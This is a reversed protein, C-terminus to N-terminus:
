RQSQYDAGVIVRIDAGIPANPDPTAAQATVGFRNQLYQITYPKSGGTYDMIVTHKAYETPVTKIVNYGYSKLLNSVQVALGTQKTANEVQVSANEAKIYGDVFLTRVFTQIDAYNGIGDVPVVVSADGMTSNRVLNNTDNNLVQNTVNKPDLDKGITALRQIEPIQLDTKVNKGVVALMALVKTPDTLISQQSAKQRLALLVQQQRKARGYDDGCTGKRCRSYKLALTGDMHYTGPKLSFGCSRSENNDCPYEPDNLAEDVTINDIGGVNDVTQKLASFNILTYYHIPVGLVASVTQKALEPGSGAKAQEGYVNAANIKDWGVGPIKVYLDRPISLMAVQNNKVDYSAVMITDTLHEGAHGEDGEGLILVNVRGDGEGKLTQPAVTEALAPASEGIHRQVVKHVSAYVLVGIGLGAAIILALLVILLKKWWAWKKRKPKGPNVPPETQLTDSQPHQKRLRFSETSPKGSSVHVVKRSRGDPAKNGDM